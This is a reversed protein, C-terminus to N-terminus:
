YAKTRGSLSINGAILFTKTAKGLSKRINTAFIETM